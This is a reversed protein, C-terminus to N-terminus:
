IMQDDLKIMRHNLGFPKGSTSTGILDISHRWGFSKFRANYELGHQEQSYMHKLPKAWLCCMISEIGFREVACLSHHM